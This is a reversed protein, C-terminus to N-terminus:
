LNIDVRYRGNGLPETMLPLWTDAEIETSFQPELAFEGRLWVGGSLAFVAEMELEIPGDLHFVDLQLSDGDRERIEAAFSGLTLWRQEDHVRAQTWSINGRLSELRDNRFRLERIHASLQGDVQLPLDRVLSAPASINANRLTINGGLTSCADAEIQQRELEARVSACPHLRLLSTPHIRWNLEGLSYTEGELRISSMSAQGQWLSGSIGSLAIQDSARTILWAGWVAPTQSIVFALWLLLTVPIWILKAM